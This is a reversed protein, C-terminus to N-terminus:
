SLLIQSPVFHKSACTDNCLQIKTQSMMGAYNRPKERLHATRCSRTQGFKFFNQNKCRKRNKKIKKLSRGTPTGCNFVKWNIKM